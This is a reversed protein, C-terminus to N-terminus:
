GGIGVSVAVFVTLAAMTLVGAVMYASVLGTAVAGSLGRPEGANPGEQLQPEHIAM